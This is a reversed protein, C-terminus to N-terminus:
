LPPLCRAEECVNDGPCDLDTTCEPALQPVEPPPPLPPFKPGAPLITPGNPGVPPTPGTPKNEEPIVREFVEAGFIEKRISFGLTHAVVSSGYYGRYGFEYQAFSAGTGLVWTETGGNLYDNAYAVSVFASLYPSIFTFPQDVRGLISLPLAFAGNTVVRFAAGAGYTIHMARFDLVASAIAGAGGGWVIVASPANQVSAIALSLPVYAAVGVLRNGGSDKIQWAYAPSGSIAGQNTIGGQNAYSLFGVASFATDKSLPVGYSIPISGGYTGSSAELVGGGAYDPMAGAKRGQIRAINEVQANQVSTSGGTALIGDGAGNGCLSGITNVMNVQAPGSAAVSNFGLSPVNWNSNNDFNIQQGCIVM